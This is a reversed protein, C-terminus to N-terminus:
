SNGPPCIKTALNVIKDGWDHFKGWKDGPVRNEMKKFWNFDNLYDIVSVTYQVKSGRSDRGLLCFPESLSTPCEPVEDLDSNAVGILLSYDIIDHSALFSADTSLRRILSACDQPAVHMEGGESEIFHKEDVNPRSKLDYMKYGVVDSLAQMSHDQRHTADELIVYISQDKSMRSDGLQVILLGYIRDLLSSPNARLHNYLSTTDDAGQLMKKLNAVEDMTSGDQLGGKIVFRSDSTKMFNAGSKGGGSDPIVSELPGSELSRTLDEAVTRTRGPMSLSRLQAFDGDQLIDVHCNRMKMVTCLQPTLSIKSKAADEKVAAMGEKDVWHGGLRQLFSARLIASVCALPMESSKDKAWMRCAASDAWVAKSPLPVTVHLPSPSPSSRRDINLREQLLCTTDDPLGDAIGLLLAGLIFSQLTM